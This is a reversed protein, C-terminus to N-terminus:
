ATRMIYALAFFAPIMSVTDHTGGTHVDPQTFSHVLTGHDAPDTIAHAGYATGAHVGPDYAASTHSFSALSGTVLTLSLRSATGSALSYAGSMHTAHTYTPAALTAHTLDPHNGITLDHSYPGTHNAIAGGAHTLGPHSAHNHGTSTASQEASGRVTSKAVGGSDADAGVIFKNTLNPTGTTGDCLHWNAPIAAILGSWAIIGGVPVAGASEGVHDANWDSPRVVTTLTGDGIGCSFAHEIPM